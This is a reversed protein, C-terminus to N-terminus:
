NKFIKSLLSQLFQSTGSKQTEFVKSEEETKEKVLIRYERSYLVTNEASVTDIRILYVGPAINEVKHTFFSVAGKSEFAAEDMISVLRKEDDKKKDYEELEATKVLVWGDGSKQQVAYANIKLFKGPQTTKISILFNNTVIPENESPNVLTVAPDAAAFSFPAFVCFVLTMAVAFLFRKM